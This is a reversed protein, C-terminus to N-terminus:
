REGFKVVMASGRYMREVELLGKTRMVIARSSRRAASVSSSLNEEAM